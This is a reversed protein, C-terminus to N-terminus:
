TKRRPPRILDRLDAGTDALVRPDPRLRTAVMRRGIGVDKPRNLAFVSQVVGGALYFVSFSADDASGRLVAQDYGHALGVSQLNHQFQDSWFWHPDTYPEGDGLMAAAAATGQKIANDYHEVRLHAGHGPHYTVAV